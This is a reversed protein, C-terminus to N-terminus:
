RQETRILKGTDFGKSGAIGVLRQYTEPSVNKDRTLIWLYKRNPTAVISWQYDADLAIIWYDGWVFPLFSLVSPAFRVELKSRSNGLRRAVGSAAVNQGDRTECENRVAVRGSAMLSYTAKTNRACKRQFYMPFNAQEHWTGMYQSLVVDPVTELEAPVAPGGMALGILLAATGLRM